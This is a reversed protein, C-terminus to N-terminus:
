TSLSKFIQQDRRQFQSLRTRVDKKRRIACSEARTRQFLNRPEGQFCRPAARGKMPFRRQRVDRFRESRL